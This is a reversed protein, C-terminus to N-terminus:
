TAVDYLRVLGVSDWCGGWREYLSGNVVYVWVYLVSYLTCACCDLRLLVLDGAVVDDTGKASYLPVCVNTQVCVYICHFVAYMCANMCPLWKPMSVTNKNWECGSECEHVNRAARAKRIRPVMELESSDVLRAVRSAGAEVAGSM